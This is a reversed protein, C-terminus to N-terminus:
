GREEKGKARSEKRMLRMKEKEHEEENGRKRNTQLM